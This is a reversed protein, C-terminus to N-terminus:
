KCHNDYPAYSGIATTCSPGYGESAIINCGAIGDSGDGLKACCTALKACSDADADDGNGSDTQSEGADLVGASGGSSCAAMALLGAAALTNWWGSRSMLAVETIPKARLSGHPVKPGEGGQRMTPAARRLFEGAAPGSHIRAVVGRTLRM